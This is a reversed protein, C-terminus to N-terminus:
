ATRNYWIKSDNEPPNYSYQEDSMGENMFSRIWPLKDEAFDKMEPLIRVKIKAKKDPDNNDIVTAYHLSMLM